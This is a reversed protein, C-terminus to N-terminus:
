TTLRELAVRAAALDWLAHGVSKFLVPGSKERERADDLISELATVGSWDVGAQILDGAEHQAGPLTDVYIQGRRVLARPLEAMEPRYSGVAAVFADPRVDSPLVPESSTTATVILTARDLVDRPAAVAASAGLQGAYVALREAHAPTRSSIFVERIGLVEVFAELHARAQTGAGVILLPGDLNPALLQAALLSLAATRRATVTAGDLVCLRRGTAAEMVILEAQVVALGQEANRPHVTVLKTVALRRDAAPMLLLTGGAALPATLRPPAQAM